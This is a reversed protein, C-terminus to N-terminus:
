RIKKFESFTTIKSYFAHLISIYLLTNETRKKLNM